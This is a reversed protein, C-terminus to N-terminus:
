TTLEWSVEVTQGTQMERSGAWGGRKGTERSQARQQPSM